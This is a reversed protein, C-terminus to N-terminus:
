LVPFDNYAERKKNSIKDTFIDFIHRVLNFCFIFRRARYVFSASTTLILQRIFDQQENRQPPM